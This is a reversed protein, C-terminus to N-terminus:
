ILHQKLQHEQMVILYANEPAQKESTRITRAGADSLVLMNCTCTTKGTVTNKSRCVMIYVQQLHVNSKWVCYEQEQMGHYISTEPVHKSVLLQLRAGAYRSICKSCTCMAGQYVSAAPACQRVLRQLRAGAYRSICKSCTCMAKGVM